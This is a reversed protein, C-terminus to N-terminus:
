IETNLTLENINIDEREDEIVRLYKEASGIINYDSHRNPGRLESNSGIVM